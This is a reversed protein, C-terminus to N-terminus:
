PNALVRITKPVGQGNDRVALLQGTGQDEIIQWNGYRGVKLELRRLRDNLADLLSELTTVVRPKAM